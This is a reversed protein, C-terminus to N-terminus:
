RIRESQLARMLRGVEAALVRAREQRVGHSLQGVIENLDATAESTAGLGAGGLGTAGLGSRLAEGRTGLLYRTAVLARM